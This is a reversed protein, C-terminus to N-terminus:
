VTTFICRMLVHCYTSLSTSLTGKNIGINTNTLRNTQTHTHIGTQRDTQTHTHIDTQRHTHIDTLTLIQTQTHIHTSIPYNQHNSHVYFLIWRLHLNKCLM